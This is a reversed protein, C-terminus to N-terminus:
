LPLPLGLSPSRFTVRSSKTFLGCPRSDDLRFVKEWVDAPPVDSTALAAVRDEFSGSIYIALDGKVLWLKHRDGYMAVGDALHPEGTEPIFLWPGDDTLNDM